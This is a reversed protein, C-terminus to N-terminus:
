EAARLDSRKGWIRVGQRGWEFYTPMMSFRPLRGVGVNQVLDADPGSSRLRPPRRVNGKDGKPHGCSFFSMLPVHTRTSIEYRSVSNRRRKGRFNFVHLCSNASCYFNRLPGPARLGGNAYCSACFFPSIHDYLHPRMIFPKGKLRNQGWHESGVVSGLYCRHRAEGESGGEGDNEEESEEGGEGGSSGGRSGVASRYPWNQLQRQTIASM